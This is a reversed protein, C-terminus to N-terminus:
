ILPPFESGNLIHVIYYSKKAKNPKKNYNITCKYSQTDSKVCIYKSISHTFSTLVVIALQVNKAHHPKTKMPKM